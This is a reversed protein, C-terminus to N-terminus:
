AKVPENSVVVSIHCSRKRIMSARGMPGPNNRKMSPGEDVCIEKIILDDPNIKSAEEQSVANAAASRLLKEM